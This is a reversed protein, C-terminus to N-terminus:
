KILLQNNRLVDSVREGNSLVLHALFADEFSLLGTEVANLQAKISDRLISYVAISGIELAKAEYEAKTCRMRSSYSNEKLYAQAYGEFSAPFLMQKGNWEFQILLTGSTWDIMTGFKDCNFQRLVKQIEGLAKEGSTSSSYPLSM